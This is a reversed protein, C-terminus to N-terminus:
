NEEARERLPIVGDNELRAIGQGTKVRSGEEVSLSVLRGTVKSAVAAKRQAVVYGSANLLTFTQSPYIQTVNVVEVEVAPTLVGKSYLIGIVFLFVIVAGIWYFFKRRRLSRYTSLSKDIKLKSLDYNAM